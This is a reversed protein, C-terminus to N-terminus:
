ADIDFNCWLNEIVKPKKGKKIEGSAKHTLISKKTTWGDFMKDLSTNEYHSFIFKGQIQKLMKILEWMNDRDFKIEYIGDENNDILYPPDVYFLTDKTDYKKIIYKYDRNEIVVHQLRDSIFELDNAIRDLMKPISSNKSTRYGARADGYYSYRCLYVFVAAKEVSDKYETRKKKIEEYFKRSNPMDIIKSQLDLPRGKIVKFLNYIEDYKDNFVEVRSADKDKALLVHGAGAFMDVFTRHTPFMKVIEDAIRSKGGMRIIPSKVKKEKNFEGQLREDILGKLLETIGMDGYIEKLQQVKGDELRVSYKTTTPSYNKRM